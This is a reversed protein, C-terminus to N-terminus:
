KIDIMNFCKSTIKKAGYCPDGKKYDTGFCGNMLMQAIGSPNEVAYNSKEDRKRGDQLEKINLAVDGIKFEGGPDMYGNGPKIKVETSELSLGSKDEKRDYYSIVSELIGAGYPVFNRVASAAEQFAM